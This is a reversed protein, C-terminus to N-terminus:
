TGTRVAEVTGSCPSCADDFLQLTEITGTMSDGTEDLQMEAEVRGVTYVRFWTLYDEVVIEPARLSLPVTGYLNEGERWTMGEESFEFQFTRTGGGQLTVTADWTGQVDAISRMEVELMKDTPRGLFQHALQYGEAHAEFTRQTRNSEFQFRGESDTRGKEVYHGGDPLYAEFMGVGAGALPEGTELDTLTGAVEYFCGAFTTISTLMVIVAFTLRTAKM